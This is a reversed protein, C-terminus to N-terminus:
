VLFCTTQVDSASCSRPKSSFAPARLPIPLTESSTDLSPVVNARNTNRSWSSATGELRSTVFYGALDGVKSQAECRKRMDQGERMGTHRESTLFANRQAPTSLHIMPISSWFRCSSLRYPRCTDRVWPNKSSTLKM